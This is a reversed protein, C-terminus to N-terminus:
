REALSGDTIKLEDPTTSINAALSGLERGNMILSDLTAHGEVVPEKLRGRVSGNFAVKGALEIRDRDLEEELDSFLGTGFLVRQLEAADNSALNLRLDSEDREVSFRGTATLESAPTRLAAREIEFLGRDARLAVEGTVPTRATADDGTEGQLEVRAMGSAAGINTGPFSLNATGTAKGTILVPRAAWTAVLNGVDLNSFETAVRSAGRRATSLTANGTARGGLLNADFNNLQIENNTAVLGARASGLNIQGLVGGGLSLDASVRYSGRPEVVFRPRALKLDDVRGGAFEKTQALTVTGANIDGSTGEIRGGEYVSLRVGAINLSGVKAGAADVAGVRLNATEVNTVNGRSVISVNDASIGDVRAGESTIAGTRVNSVTAN